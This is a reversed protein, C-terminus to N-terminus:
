NGHTAMCVGSHRFWQNAKEDCTTAADVVVLEKVVQPLMAALPKGHRHVVKSLEKFGCGSRGAFLRKFPGHLLDTCDTFTQGTSRM